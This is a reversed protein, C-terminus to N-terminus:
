SFYLTGTKNGEWTVIGNNTDVAEYDVEWDNDDADTMKVDPRINGLNHEVVVTDTDEFEISFTRSSNSYPLYTTGSWYYLVGATDDSYVLSSVGTEPFDGFTNFHLPDQMETPTIVEETSVVEGTEDDVVIEETTMIPMVSGIFPKYLETLSNNYSIYLVPLSATEQKFLDPKNTLAFWKAMILATWYMQINSDVIPLINPNFGHYNNLRFGYVNGMNEIGISLSRNLMLSNEIGKSLKVSTQFITSVAKEAEVLLLDLEDDTVFNEETGETTRTQYQSYMKIRDMILDVPYYFIIQTSLERYM